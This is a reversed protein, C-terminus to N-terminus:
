IGNMDRGGHREACQGEAKLHKLAVCDVVLSVVVQRGAYPMTKAFAGM